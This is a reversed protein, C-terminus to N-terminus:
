VKTFKPSNIDWKLNKIQNIETIPKTLYQDNIPIEKKKNNEEDFDRSTLNHIRSLSPRHMRSPITKLQNSNVSTDVLVESIDSMMSQITRRATRPINISM